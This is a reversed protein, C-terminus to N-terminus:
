VKPKINRIKLLLQSVLVMIPLEILPGIILTLSILPQSPFISTAIALSLPSNRSLTTCSFCAFQEYSFHFYNKIGYALLFNIAFFLPIPTLLQLFIQPSNLLTNGQSAFIAVIALNLTLLQTLNIKPINLYFWKITKKQQFIFYRTITAIALPLILVLFVSEFLENVNIKVLNDTFILLYLPLLVIQLILNLPLLGTALTVDGKAIGTFIIYWDTCPTVMLMILGIRLDPANALFVIGLIWAFIPTWIFNITLSLFVVKFQNLIGSFKRLAIPLFTLYLMLILLPLILIPSIQAIWNIQGLILGVGVSLIVLFTQAKDIWSM